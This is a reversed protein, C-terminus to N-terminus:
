SLAVIRPHWTPREGRLYGAFLLAEENILTEIEQHEGKRIRPIEVKSLFHANLKKLYERQMKDNLYQRKGKKTSSFDEDKLVFDRPRLSRAYEILFDDMLYRYLELFDCVLSPRGVVIEHLYGLYPELKASLLALHVKWKLITYSLNFLNDVANFAKFGKRREPRIAANFLGFVQGFYKESYHGEINTLQTRLSRMDKGELSKIRETLHYYDLRRLGYKSLLKDQGELKSLLFTKAIEVYKGNNLSEYQAIRTKVHSDDNLSRLVAIPHGRSTLVTVPINWFGCTALAGSSISNGSRIQIECIEDEFLPYRKETGARDRLVLCGKDRGLFSGFENMNIKHTKTKM